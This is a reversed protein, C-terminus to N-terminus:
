HALGSRRLWVALTVSLFIAFLDNDKSLVPESLFRQYITRLVPLDVYREIVRSDGIIVEDLLEREELIRRKVSTSLNGKDIRWQVKKPLIGEMAHRLIARTWGQRLKQEFPLALCFEMLRRDFFPYRQEISFSAALRDFTEAAYQLLGSNLSLIHGARLTAISVSEHAELRDALGIERAFEPNIARNFFHATPSSLNKGYRLTRWGRMISDPILPKLGLDMFMQSQSLNFHRSIARVGRAFQSWKQLRALETLHVFSHPQLFRLPSLNTRDSLTHVETVFKAWKGSQALQDLYELGYSITSDGDFGSLLVRVGQEQGARLIATDMYLNPVPIVEDTYRLAEAIPKCRDAEIYHAEYDGASLVAEMYPREDIRPDEQAISPFIASFTHLRKGDVALLRSAICAISSSDLGGSLTSGVPLVSRLRCRVAETFLELFADRYDQDSQLKLERVPDWNWYLWSQISHARVTLCHAPALRVVHQYYTSIKDEFSPVLFDAVKVENLKRPVEQLCVIPDIESAFVFTDSSHYYYFGKVGMPDRACFLQDKNRDWIAFAFDGILKVPCEEGWKEYAALILASDTIEVAPRRTLQLISILEDRNDIRADATITLDGSESVCPLKEHLSEPTSHLMRHGLGIHGNCWVDAGDPGRHALADLMRGLEIIDIPREDFHYIGVIGSM